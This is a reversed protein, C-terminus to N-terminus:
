DDDGGEDVDADEARGRSANAIYSDQFKPKIGSFRYLELDDFLGQKKADGFVSAFKFGYRSLKYKWEDVRKGGGASQADPDGQQGVYKRWAGVARQDYIGLEVLRLLSAYMSINLQSALRRLESLSLSNSSIISKALRQVLDAPALFHAAFKNCKIELANNAVSSDSVGSKGAICHYIEHALTFSRRAPAQRRTNIVIVDYPKRSICFGTGDSEPFSLQLVFVNFTEIRQRLAAFMLRASQYSLQEDNSFNILQRLHAAADAVSEAPDIAASLSLESSPKSVTSAEDGILEAFGIWRLTERAYGSPAPQALRFDPISLDAVPLDDAFLQVEPVLLERSLKRVITEKRKPPADLFAALESRSM